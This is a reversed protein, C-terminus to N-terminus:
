PAGRRGPSLARRPPADGAPPKARYRTGRGDGVRDVLGQRHMESLDRSVTRLSARVVIALEGVSREGAHVIEQALRAWRVARAEEAAGARGAGGIPLVAVEELSVPEGALDYGHSLV